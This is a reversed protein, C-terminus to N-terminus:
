NLFAKGSFAGNFSITLSNEDNYAVDGYVKSNATDIVTVSPFYGLNHVIHWTNSAIAQEHVYHTFDAWATDYDADSIKKLYQGSTGGTPVGKKTVGADGQPIMTIEPSEEFLVDIETTENIDINDSFASGVIVQALTGERKMSLAM